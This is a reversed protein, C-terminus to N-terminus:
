PMMLPLKEIEASPVPKSFYYGQLLDCAREKLFALQAETEVGEAVVILNMKKGLMIIMEVVAATNPDTTIDRIFSYDIKLEDLPLRQLYKLSCYGTGFDDISIKVGLKKMATLVQVTFNIDQMALNETIELTLCPPALRTDRLVREVVEPLEQQQFQTASLNVSLNLSPFGKEQWAKVQACAAQLVWEGIPIILGTEDALPIFDQPPVLGREPHQWRLLAEVGTIRSTAIKVQPQYCVLLERRELARSLSNELVIRDFASVAMSQTFFRCSNNGLERARLMATEANQLLAQGDRGDDPYLAVGINCSVTIEQGDITWPRKFVSSRWWRPRRGGRIDPPCNEQDLYIL